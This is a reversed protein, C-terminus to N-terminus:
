DERYKSIGCPQNPKPPNEKLYTLDELTQTLVRKQQLIPLMLNDKENLPISWDQLITQVEGDLESLANQIHKISNM